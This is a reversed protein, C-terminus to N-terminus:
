YMCILIYMKRFLQCEVTENTFTEETELLLSMWSTNNQVFWHATCYDVFRVVQPAYESTDCYRYEYGIEDKKEFEYKVVLEILACYCILFSWSMREDFMEEFIYVLLDHSFYNTKRSLQLKILNLIVENRSKVLYVLSEVKCNVIDNQMCGYVCENRLANNFREKIVRQTTNSNETPVSQLWMGASFSSM